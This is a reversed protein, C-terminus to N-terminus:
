KNLEKTVSQREIEADIMTSVADCYALSVYGSRYLALTYGKLEEVTLKKDLVTLISDLVKSDIM